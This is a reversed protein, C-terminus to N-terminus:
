KGILRNTIFGLQRKIADTDQKMYELREEIRALKESHSANGTGQREVHEVRAELSVAWVFMGVVQMLIMMVVAIPVRKDLAWEQNHKKM